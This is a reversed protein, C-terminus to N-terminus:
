STPACGTRLLRSWNNKQLTRSKGKRTFPPSSLPRSLSNSQIQQMNVADSARSLLPTLSVRMAISNAGIPCFISLMPVLIGTPRVKELCFTFIAPPQFERQKPLYVSIGAGLQMLQTMLALSCRRPPTPQKSIFTLRWSAHVYAIDRIPIIRNVFSDVAGLLGKTSRELRCEQFYGALQERVTEEGHKCSESIRSLWPFSSVDTLVKAMEDVDSSHVAPDLKKSLQRLSLKRFVGTMTPISPVFRRLCTDQCEHRLAAPDLRSCISSAKELSCCHQHCHMHRPSPDNCRNAIQVGLETVAGRVSAATLYENPDVYAIVETKTPFLKRILEM